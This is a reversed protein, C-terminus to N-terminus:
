LDVFDHFDGPEHSKELYEFLSLLDIVIHFFNNSQWLADFSEHEEAHKEDDRQM